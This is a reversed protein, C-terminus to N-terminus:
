NLGRILPMSDILRGQADWIEVAQGDLPRGHNAIAMALDHASARMEARASRPGDLLIGEDDPIITEGVRIHFYYRTM